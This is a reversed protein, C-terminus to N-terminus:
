PAVGAKIPAPTVDKQLSHSLADVVDSAAEAHDLAFGMAEKIQAAHFLSALRACTDICGCLWACGCMCDTV